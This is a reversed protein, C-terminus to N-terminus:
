SRKRRARPARASRPRAAAEVRRTPRSARAAAGRRSETLMPKAGRRVTLQFVDPRAYHGAADFTWRSATYQAPDVEAYLIDQREHLPGAIFAGDPGVVASDGANVWDRGPPYLRKFGLREPVDSMRLAMGCGIVFVRGEKAIHRLTSLWPEGRDWTAAVYLQAGWAYMAYRTLPMYSEWCILGCLRGLPTAHVALTSGDGQAWVLREAYTPVLKRHKAYLRGEADFFLLANYLTTGSAEANLENVGIVLQVKAERAARGIRETEASPATIANAVLEAYLATQAKRENPPLVWVWDPYAPIFAEPFVVLRAGAHGADAILRCVKEVTAARDLFVPAHQVVAVKFPATASM